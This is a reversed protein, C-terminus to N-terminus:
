REVASVFTPYRVIIYNVIIDDVQSSVTDLNIRFSMLDCKTPVGGTITMQFLHCQQSQGVVTTGSLSALTTFQDGLAKHWCELQIVVTDTVLGGSNDNNVEFFIDVIVNGVGDYDDEIYGDFFLWETLGNLQYGGLSAASPKIQTAGSGGASINVAAVPYLHWYGGEGSADLRIYSGESYMDEIIADQATCSCLFVLLLPILLLKKM